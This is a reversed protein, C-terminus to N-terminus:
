TSSAARPGFLCARPSQTGGKPSVAARYSNVAPDQFCVVVTPDTVERLLSYGAACLLAAAPVLILLARRRRWFPPEPGPGPSRLIRQLLAQGGPSAPSPVEETSLPNAGRLRRRAGDGPGSV